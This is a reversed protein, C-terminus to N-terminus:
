IVEQDSKAPSWGQVAVWKGELRTSAHTHRKHLCGQHLVPPLMSKKHGPTCRTLLQNKINYLLM